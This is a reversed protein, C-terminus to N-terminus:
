SKGFKKWERYLMYIGAPILFAGLLGQISQSAMPLSGLGLLIFVAGMLARGASFGDGAREYETNLYTEPNQKELEQQYEEMKEVPVEPFLKSSFGCNGCKYGYDLGMVAIVDSRDVSVDTSGCNPCVKVADKM